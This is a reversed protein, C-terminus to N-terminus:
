FGGRSDLTAGWPPMSTRDKHPHNAGRLTSLEIPDVAVMVLREIVIHRM